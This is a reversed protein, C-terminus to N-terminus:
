LITDGIEFVICNDEIFVFDLKMLNKKYIEDFFQVYLYQHVVGNNVVSEIWIEGLCILPIDLKEALEKKFLGKQADSDLLSIILSDFM